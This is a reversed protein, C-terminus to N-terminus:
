TSAYHTCAPPNSAQWLLQPCCRWCCSAHHAAAAHCMFNCSNSCHQLHHHWTCFHTHTVSTQPYTTEKTCQEAHHCQVAQQESVNSQHTYQKPSRQKITVICKSDGGGTNTETSCQCMCKNLSTVRISLGKLMTHETYSPSLVALVASTSV